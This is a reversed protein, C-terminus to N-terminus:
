SKNKKADIIRKVEEITKGTKNAITEYIKNEGISPANISGSAKVTKLTSAGQNCGGNQASKNNNLKSCEPQKVFSGGAWQPTKEAKTKPNHKGLDMTLGGPTDYQFNGAGAVDTENIGIKYWNNTDSPDIGNKILFARSLLRFNSPKEEPFQDILDLKVWHKIEDNDLGKYDWGNVIKNDSKRVAFHTYGKGLISPRAEAVVPAEPMERKVMPMDMAPTFGGASGTGTMEEIPHEKEYKAKLVVYMEGRSPKLQVEYKENTKPSDNMVTNSEKDLHYANVRYAYETDFDLVKAIQGFWREPYLDGNVYQVNDGVNYRPSPRSATAEEEIEGAARRREQEQDKHKQLAAVIRNQKDEPKETPDTQMPDFNRKLMGRVDIDGVQIEESVTNLLSALNNDNNYVDLLEVKLPEDIKVIDVGKLWAEEGDGKTLSGLNDNVYNQITDADVEYFTPNAMYPEFKDKQIDYYYFAYLGGEGKFIAIEPNIYVTTLIPNEAEIAQHDDDERNWPANPDNEAGAPYDGAAETELEPTTETTDKSQILEQLKNELNSLAEDKNDTTKTLKFANGEDNTILKNRLLFGCIEDFSIGKESWFPSLNDSKGYLMKVLELVESKIDGSNEKIGKSRFQKDVRNLGGAVINEGEKILKGGFIRNYQEQTIRLTKKTSEVNAKILGLLKAQAETIKIKKM